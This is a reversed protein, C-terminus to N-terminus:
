PQGSPAPSNHLLEAIAPFGRETAFQEAAVGDRDKISADAGNALLLRVIDLNGVAAAAILPTFGQKQSQVDVKAGKQLLFRAVETSSGRCAYILPTQGDSDATDINAGNEVLFEAVPAHGRLAAWMLATRGKDDAADVATGKAALGQLRELQGNYASEILAQEAASLTGPDPAAGSAGAAWLLITLAVIIKV